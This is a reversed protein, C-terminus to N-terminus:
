EKSTLRCSLLLKLRQKPEWMVQGTLALGPGMVFGSELLKDEPNEGNSNPLGVSWGLCFDQTQQQNHKDSLVVKFVLRFVLGALPHLVWDSIKLSGPAALTDKDLALSVAASSIQKWTNHQTVELRRETVQAKLFQPETQEQGQCLQRLFHSFSKELAAAGKCVVAHLFVDQSKSLAIPQSLNASLGSASLGPVMELPGFICDLPILAELQTLNPDSSVAVEVSVSCGTKNLEPNPALLVRATGQFLSVSTNNNSLSVQIFGIGFRKFDKRNQKVELLLEAVMLLEPDEVRTNFLVLDKDKLEFNTLPM